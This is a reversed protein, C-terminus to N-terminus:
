RAGANTLSQGADSRLSVLAPPGQASILFTEGDRLSTLTRVASASSMHRASGSVLDLLWFGPTGDIAALVHSGQKDAAILNAAGGEPLLVRTSGSAGDAGRWLVIANQSPDSLVLNHSHQLFTWAGPAHSLGIPQFRSGKLSYVPPQEAFAAVVLEGDDSVALNLLAGRDSFDLSGGVGAVGSRFVLSQMRHALNSVLVAASGTPSFAVRDPQAIAGAVLSGPSLASRSLRAVSLGSGSALLAYEQGPPLFIQSTSEPVSIPEGWVPRAFSGAVSKLMLAGDPLYGLLPRAGEINPLKSSSQPSAQMAPRIGVRTQPYVVAAACIAAIFLKLMM